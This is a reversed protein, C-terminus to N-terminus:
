RRGGVAPAAPATVDYVRAKQARLASLVSAKLEPQDPNGWEVRSENRLVFWVSNAGNAGIKRVEALLEDPLTDIVALTARLAPAGGTLLDVEVVALGKPVKAAEEVVVGDNDVLSYRSGAPVAAVPVREVVRVRLAGPWGREVRVQRVVVNEGVTRELAELDAIVMADGVWPQAQQLVDERSLRVTGSVEVTQVRLWPSLLVVWALFGALLLVAV